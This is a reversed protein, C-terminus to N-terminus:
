YPTALKGEVIAIAQPSLLFKEIMINVDRGQPQPVLDAKLSAALFEKKIEFEVNSLARAEDFVSLAKALAAKADFKIGRPLHKKAGQVFENAIKKRHKTYHEDSMSRIRELPKIFRENTELQGLREQGKPPIVCPKYTEILYLQSGTLNAKVGDIIKDVQKNYNRKVRELKMQLEQYRRLVDEPITGVNQMLIGKLEQLSSKYDKVYRKAEKEADCKIMELEMAKTAILRLQEKSLYLGNILNIVHIKDRLAIIEEDKFEEASSTGIFFLFLFIFFLIKKM